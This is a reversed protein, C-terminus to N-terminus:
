EVLVAQDRDANQMAQLRESLDVDRKKSESLTDFHAVTKEFSNSFNIPKKQQKSPM